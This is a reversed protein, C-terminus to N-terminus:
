TDDAGGEDGHYSPEAVDVAGNVRDDVCGEVGLEPVDKM